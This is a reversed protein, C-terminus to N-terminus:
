SDGEKIWKVKEKQTMSNIKRNTNRKQQAESINQSNDKASKEQKEYSGMNRTNKDALQGITNPEGRVSIAPANIFVKRLTKKNCCPCEQISPADHAQRIEDYYKCEKCEFDYLPM